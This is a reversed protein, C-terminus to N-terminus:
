DCNESVFFGSRKEVLMRSFRYIFLINVFYYPGYQAHPLIAVGGGGWFFFFFFFSFFFFTQMKLSPQRRRSYVTTVQLFLRIKWRNSQAASFYWLLLRFIRRNECKLSFGHKSAMQTSIALCVKGRSLKLIQSYAVFSSFLEEEPLTRQSRLRLAQPNGKVDRVCRSNKRRM